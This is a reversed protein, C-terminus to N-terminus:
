LKLGLFSELALFDFFEGTSDRELKLFVGNDEGALLGKPDFELNVPIDEGLIFFLSVSELPTFYNRLLLNYFVLM